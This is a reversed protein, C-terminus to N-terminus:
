RIVLGEFFTLPSFELDNITLENEYITLKRPQCLQVRVSVIHAGENRLDELYGQQASHAETPNEFPGFYYICSPHATFVEIWWSFRLVAYNPDIPCSM